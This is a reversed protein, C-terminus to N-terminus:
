REDVRAPGSPLLEKGNPIQVHEIRPLKGCTNM